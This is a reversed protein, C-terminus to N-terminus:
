HHHYKHGKLITWARYLQEMLVVLAVEHNLVLSSLKISVNARRRLLRGHGYPGGICFLLSPAGDILANGIFSATQISDLELGREDLLVVWEDQSKICRMCAQDEHEIQVTPDRASKPNSKVRVDEVPCYHSLKNVYDDVILQVGASRKKGVTLIRVPIPRVSQGTFRLPGPPPISYKATVGSSSSSSLLAEM